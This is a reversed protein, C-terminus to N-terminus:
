LYLPTDVNQHGVLRNMIDISKNLVCICIQAMKM